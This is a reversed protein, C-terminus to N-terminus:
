MAPAACEIIMAPRRDIMANFIQRASDYGTSSPRLLRGRLTMALKQVDHESLVLANSAYHDDM